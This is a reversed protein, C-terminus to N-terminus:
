VALGVAVGQSVRPKEKTVTGPDWNAMDWSKTRFLLM